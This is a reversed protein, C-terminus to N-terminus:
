DSLDSFDGIRRVVGDSKVYINGQLCWANKASYKNIADTLLKLRCKTLDEQIFINTNKLKSRNRIVESRNNLNSFEVLVSRPKDISAYKARVRHCRVFDTEKISNIQMKNKFISIVTGALNEGEHEPIGFIRINRSRAHQENSDISMRLMSNERELCSVTTKLSSIKEEMGQLQKEFKKEIRKYLTEALNNVFDRDKLSDNMVKKIEDLDIRTLVMTSLIDLSEGRYVKEM